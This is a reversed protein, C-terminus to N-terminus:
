LRTSGNELMRINLGHTNLTQVSPAEACRPFTTADHQATFSLTTLAGSTADILYFGAGEAMGSSIVSTSDPVLVLDEPNAAGCVFSQGADPECADQAHAARIFTLLAVLVLLRPTAM